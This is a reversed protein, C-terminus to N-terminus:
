LSTVGVKQASAALPLSEPPSPKLVEGGSNSGSHPQLCHGQLHCLCNSGQKGAGSWTPLEHSSPRQSLVPTSMNLRSESFM